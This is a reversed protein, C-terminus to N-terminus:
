LNKKEILGLHELNQIRNNRITFFDCSPSLFINIPLYSEKREKRGLYVKKRGLYLFVDGEKLVVDNGYSYEILENNVNKIKRFRLNVMQKTVFILDGPKLDM